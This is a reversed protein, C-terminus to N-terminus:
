EEAAHQKESQLTAIDIEVARDGSTWGRIQSWETGLSALRARSRIGEAQDHILELQSRELM